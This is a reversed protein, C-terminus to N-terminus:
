VVEQGVAPEVSETSEALEIAQDLRADEVLQSNYIEVYIPSSEM